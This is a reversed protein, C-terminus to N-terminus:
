GGRRVLGPTPSTRDTRNSSASLALAPPPVHRVSGSFAAEASTLLVDRVESLDIDFRIFDMLGDYTYQLYHTELKRFVFSMSLIPNQLGLPQW